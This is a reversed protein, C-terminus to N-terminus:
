GSVAKLLQARAECMIVSLGGDNDGVNYNNISFNKYIAMAMAIM